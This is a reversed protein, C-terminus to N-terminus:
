THPFNIWDTTYLEYRYFWVGISPLSTTIIAPESFGWSFIPLLIYKLTARVVEKTNRATYSNHLCIVCLNAIFTNDFMCNVAPEEKTYICIYIAKTKSRTQYKTLCRRSANTNSQSRKGIFNCLTPNQIEFWILQRWTWVLFLDMDLWNYLWKNYALGDVSGGFLGLNLLPKPLGCNFNFYQHNLEWTAFNMPGVHPGGPDQRGWHPGMNAGHVKSDPCDM